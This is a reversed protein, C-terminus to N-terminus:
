RGGECLASAGDYVPKWGRRSACRATAHVAVGAPLRDCLSRAMADIARPNELRRVKRPATARDPHGLVAFRDLPARRGDAVQEFRVDCVKLGHGAYMRWYRTFPGREFGLLQTAVPGHLLFGAALVFVVLRLWRTSATV